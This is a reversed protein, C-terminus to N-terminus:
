KIMCGVPQTSARVKEEGKLLGDIASRLYNTRVDSAVQPSDDIAGTYYIKENGKLLFVELSKKAGLFNALEKFKDLLYPTSLSKAQEKMRDIPESSNSNIMLFVIGKSKFDNKMDQLRSVYYKVYPCSTSMFVIVMAKSSRYHKLTITKGTQIEQLKIDFVSQASVLISSLLLMLLMLTSKM